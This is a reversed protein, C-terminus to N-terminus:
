PVGKLHGSRRLLVKYKTADAHPSLADIMATDNGQLLVQEWRSTQASIGFGAVSFWFFQYELLVVENSKNTLQTHVTLRNDRLGTTFQPVEIRNALWKSQIDVLSFDGNKVKPKDPIENTHICGFFVASLLGVFVFKMMFQRSSQNINM